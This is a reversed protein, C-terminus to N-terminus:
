ADNARRFQDYPTVDARMSVLMESWSPAQFGTANRFRSGDLSRDCVFTEDPQIEIALGYTQKVITLLDFKSIPDGAVHWIGNLDPHDAIVNSIVNALVPTTLGSFIARRFGRVAKGNQSLFWELLGHSGDLERGIMSTRITLCHDEHLEGLLKTRGYLDEADPSDSESYNGSRGSFVCDTSLHILRAGSERAYQALRHPFLSNVASSAIPDSAAAQQKVLGICNVVVDPKVSAFIRSVSECAEVSVNGFVRAEEFIGFRSYEEPRRRVTVSADFRPALTQWLKHGLMGSGGLIVVKM